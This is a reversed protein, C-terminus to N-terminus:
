RQEGLRSELTLDDPSIWSLHECVRKVSEGAILRDRVHHMITHLAIQIQEPPTKTPLATCYSADDVDRWEGDRKTQVYFRLLQVDEPDNPDYDGDFSENSEDTLEVRVGQEEIAYEM